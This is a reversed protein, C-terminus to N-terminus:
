MELDGVGWNKGERGRGGGGGGEEWGVKMVDGFGGSGLEELHEFETELRSRGFSFARRPSGM